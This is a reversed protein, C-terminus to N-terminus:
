GLATPSPWLDKIHGRYRAFLQTTKDTRTDEPRRAQEEREFAAIAILWDTARARIDDLPKLHARRAKMREKVWRVVRAEPARLDLAVPLLDGLWETEVESNDTLEVGPPACFVRYRPDAGWLAASFMQQEKNGLEPWTKLALYGVCLPLKLLDRQQYESPMNRHIDEIVPHRRLVEWMAAEPAIKEPEKGWWHKHSFTENWPPRLHWLFQEAERRFMKHKSDEKM